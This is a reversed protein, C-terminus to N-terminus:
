THFVIYNFEWDVSFTVGFDPTDIYLVLDTTTTFAGAVGGVFSGASAGAYQASWTPRSGVTDDGTPRIGVIVQPPQAFTKGLSITKYRRTFQFQGLFVNGQTVSSWSGDYASTGQMYLGNYRGAFGDFVINEDAATDVDFGSRSVKFQAPSIRIRDM